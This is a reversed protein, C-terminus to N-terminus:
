VYAKIYYASEIDPNTGGDTGMKVQVQWWLGVSIPFTVYYFGDADTTLEYYRQTADVKGTTHTEDLVPTEADVGEYTAADTLAPILQIHINNAQNIDVELVVTLQNCNKCDIRSGIDAFDTTSTITQPSALLVKYDDVFKYLNRSTDM